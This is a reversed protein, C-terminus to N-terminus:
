LPEPPQPLQETLEREREQEATDYDCLRRAAPYVAAYAQRTLRRAQSELQAHPGFAIGNYLTPIRTEDEAHSASAEASPDRSEPGAGEGDDGQPRRAFVSMGPGRGEADGRATLLASLIFGDRRSNQSALIMLSWYAAEPSDAITAGFRRFESSMALLARESVRPDGQSSADILITLVACDELPPPLGAAEAEPEPEPSGFLDDPLWACGAVLWVAVALAPGARVRGGADPARRM